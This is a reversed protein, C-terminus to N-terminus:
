IHLIRNSTDGIYLVECDSGYIPLFEEIIAKQLINHNGLSLLLPKGNPLMVPIKELNRKRSLLESLSQRNKNFVKLAEGWDKTRYKIILEKVAPQLSYGRTPDNTASGNNVGSNIIFDALVLLKLDKRRIDDYSGSSIKENFNKNVFFIIDRSKLNANDKAKSWDNTVGSVALFCMAMRELGRETKNDVPIGLSELIDLAENIIKQTTKSKNSKSIYNKM